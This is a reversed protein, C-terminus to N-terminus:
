RPAAAPVSLKRFRGLFLSFDIRRLAVDAIFIMAALMVLYPWLSTLTGTVIDDQGVIVKGVERRLKEFDERFLELQQETEATPSM